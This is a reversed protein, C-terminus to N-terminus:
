NKHGHNLRTPACHAEQTVKRSGKGTIIWKAQYGHRDEIEFLNVATPTTTNSIWQSVAGRTLGISIALTNQTIGLEGLMQKIRFGITDIPPSNMSLEHTLRAALNTSTKFASATAALAARADNSLESLDIIEGKEIKSLLHSNM